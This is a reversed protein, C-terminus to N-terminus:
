IVLKKSSGPHVRGLLILGAVFFLTVSLVALRQDGSISSVFGFVLPGLIASFKGMMAYFGYFEAEMDEPIFHAMMARSAAQCSGMAIGALVGVGYFTMADHSFFAGVTVAMWLFLTTQITKKPGIKDTLFGFSYAGAIAAFQIIAFFTIVEVMTFGLTQTAFIAGFFIVTNVGDIYVFYALLFRFLNPYRRIEKLTNITRRVGAKFYSIAERHRILPKDPVFFYFPLSFTLFFLGAWVFSPRMLSLDSASAAMDAYFLAILLACLAGVYGLAFGYGSIRGINSSNSIQPLFGNYFVIAGEFGFNALIFLVMGQWIMGPELFYLSITCCICLMSYSFVFWKKRQSYDAAAGLVPSSIAVLFMSTSGAVSWLFDGPNYRLGSLSLSFDAVIYDRFYVAYVVTVVIVSFSTNAFDYLSWAFIAKRDTRRKNKADTGPTTKDTM